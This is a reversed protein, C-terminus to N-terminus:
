EIFSIRVPLGSVNAVDGFVIQIFAKQAAGANDPEPVVVECSVVKPNDLDISCTELLSSVHRIIEDDLTPLNTPVVFGLSTLARTLSQIVKQSKFFPPPGRFTGRQREMVTIFDDVFRRLVKHTIGARNNTGDGRSLHSNFDRLETIVADGPYNDYLTMVLKRFDETTLTGTEIKALAKNIRSRDVENTVFGTM